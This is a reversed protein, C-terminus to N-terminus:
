TINQVYRAMLQQIEEVDAARRILELTKADM